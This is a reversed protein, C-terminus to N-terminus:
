FKGAKTYATNRSVGRELEAAQANQDPM